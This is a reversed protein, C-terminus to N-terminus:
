RASRASSWSVRRRRRRRAARRAVAISVGAGAAGAVVAEVIGHRLREFVLRAPLSRGHVAAGAVVRMCRPLRLRVAPLPDSVNMPPVPTHCPRVAGRVAAEPPDAEVSLGCSPSAPSPSLTSVSTSCTMPPALPSM